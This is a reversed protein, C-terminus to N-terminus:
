KANRQEELISLRQELLSLQTHLRSSHQKINEVHELAKKLNDDRSKPNNKIAVLTAKLSDLRESLTSEASGETLIFNRVFDSFKKYNM